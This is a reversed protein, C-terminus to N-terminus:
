AGLKKKPMRNAAVEAARMERLEGFLKRIEVDIRRTIAEKEMDHMVIPQGFKIRVRGTRPLPKYNPWVHFAGEIAVPVVPVKARRVLLSAGSEMAAIEGDSCRSGEPFILMARGARLLQIAANVAERDGKGQRVPFANCQRIGWGFVPPEFLESKALFTLARPLKCAIFAPDVYSQHNSVLLVGGSLPVNSQGYVKLDQFMTGLWRAVARCFNYMWTSSEYGVVGIRPLESSAEAAPTPALADRVRRELEPLVEAM